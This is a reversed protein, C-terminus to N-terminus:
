VTAAQRQPLTITFTSGEGVASRLSVEGGMMQVFGRVLALGLGTGQGSRASAGVQQFEEFVRAQDEASIGVGTDSVAVTVLGGDHAAAATRVSGGEPTFKVANSLLNLVVQRLRAPDQEVTPLDAPVDLEMRVHKAQALPLVVGQAQQLLERLSFPVPHLEMKGAEIKSLDLLDNVLSLQHDGAGRIDRLYEEQKENLDGFLRQLLVDSFGLIANLPTRLDHSVAALFRSKAESAADLRENAEQLRQQQRRLQAAVVGVAFAAVILLGLMLIRVLRQGTAAVDFALLATPPRVAIVEWLANRVFATSVLDNPERALTRADAALALSSVAGDPGVSVILRGSEDRVHIERAASLVPTLWQAVRALPVEAVFARVQQAGGRILADPPEPIGASFMLGAAHSQHTVARVVPQFAFCCGRDRSAPPLYDTGPPHTVTAPWAALVDGRSNFVFLREIDVSLSARHTELLRQLALDFSGGQGYADTAAALGASQSVGFAEDRLAAIRSSLLDAARAAADAAALREAQELRSRSDLSVIEGLALLPLAIFVVVIAMLRWPGVAWVFRDLWLREAADYAGACHSLTV